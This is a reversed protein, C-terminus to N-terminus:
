RAAWSSGTNPRVDGDAGALADGPAVLDVQSGLVCRDRSVRLFQASEACAAALLLKVM